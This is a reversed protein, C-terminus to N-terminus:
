QRCANQAIDDLAIIEVGSANRADKIIRVDQRREGGHEPSICFDIQNSSFWNATLADKLPNEPRNDNNFAEQVKVVRNPAVLTYITGSRPHRVILVSASRYGTSSGANEIAAGWKTSYSRTLGNYGDDSIIAKVNLNALITQLNSSGLGYDGVVNGIVDYVYVKYGTPSSARTEGFTILRGYLAKNSQGKGNSQPNSVESYVSRLFEAFNQVSDTFRQQYVSNSTGVAVGVFLAGTIALFIAVEILTFGSRKKM